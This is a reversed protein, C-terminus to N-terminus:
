QFANPEIEVWRLERINVPMTFVITSFAQSPSLIISAVTGFVGPIISPISVPDGEVIETDRPLTIEFTSGGRATATATINKKGLIVDFKQGAYSFLSVKSFTDHVEIVKGIPVSGLAYVLSGVTIGQETGVDVIMTDYPTGQSNRIITALIPNKVVTRGLLEKLETNEQTLESIQAEASILAELRQSLMDNEKMLGTRTSFLTDLGSVTARFPWTIPTLLSALRAPAFILMIVLVVTVILGIVFALSSNRRRAASRAGGGM